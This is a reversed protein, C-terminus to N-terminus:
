AVSMETLSESLRTQFTRYPNNISGFRLSLTMIEVCKNCFLEVAEDMEVFTARHFGELAHRAPGAFFGGFRVRGADLLM